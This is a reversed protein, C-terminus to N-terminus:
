QLNGLEKLKELMRSISAMREPNSGAFEELESAMKNATNRVVARSDTIRAQTLSANLDWRALSAQNKTIFSDFYRWTTVAQSAQLAYSGAIASKRNFASDDLPLEDYQENLQQLDNLDNNFMTLYEYYQNGAAAARQWPAAACMAAAFLFILVLAAIGLVRLRGVISMKPKKEVAKAAFRASTAEGCEPCHKPNPQPLAKGCAPCYKM